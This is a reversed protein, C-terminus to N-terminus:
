NINFHKAMHKQVISIGNHACVHTDKQTHAPPYNRMTPFKIAKLDENESRLSTIAESLAMLWQGAIRQPATFLSLISFVKIESLPTSTEREQNILPCFNVM